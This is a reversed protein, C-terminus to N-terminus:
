SDRSVDFSDYTVEGEPSRHTYYVPFKQATTIRAEKHVIGYVQSTMREVRVPFDRLSYALDEFAMIFASDHLAWDMGRQDTLIKGGRKLLSLYNDIMTYYHYQCCSFAALNNDVIYDYSYKELPASFIREYKNQLYITYNAMALADGHHKEVTSVTLGDITAGYEIFKKALLSNGIGVHLIRQKPQLLAQLVQEIRHQDETTPKQSYNVYPAYDVALGPQHMKGCVVRAANFRREPM